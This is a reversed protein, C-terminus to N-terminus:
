FSGGLPPLKAASPWVEDLTNGDYVFGNLIVRDIKITNRIDQLPNADLVILDALKGPEVSGLDEAMGLADASGITACRIAQLPTMGGDVYSWLEWHTGLGSPTPEDHSGVALKAGAALMRNASRVATWYVPDWEPAIKQGIIRRWLHERAGHLLFHSQKPDDDVDMRRYWHESGAASTGITPTYFFGTKAMLQGVDGYLPHYSWLHETATYGDMLMGLNNKFDINGEATIMMDQRRAAEAMLQRQRRTPQDYEKLAIAGLKKQLEVAHM